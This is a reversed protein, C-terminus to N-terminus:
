FGNRKMLLLLQPLRVMPATLVSVLFRWGKGNQKSIIITPYKDEDYLELYDNDWNKHSFIYIEGKILKEM